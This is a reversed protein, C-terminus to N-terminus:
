VLCSIAPCYFFKFFNSFFRYQGKRPILKTNVQVPQPIGRFPVTLSATNRGPSNYRLAGSCSDRMAAVAAPETTPLLPPHWPCNPPTVCFPPLSLLCRFSLSFIVSVSINLHLFIAFYFLRCFPPLIFSPNFSLLISFL